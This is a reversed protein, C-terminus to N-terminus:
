NKNYLILAIAYESLKKYYYLDIKSDKNNNEQLFTKNIEYYKNRIDQNFNIYDNLKPNMNSIFFSKSKM